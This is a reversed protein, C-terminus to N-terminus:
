PLAAHHDAVFLPILASRVLPRTLSPVHFDDALPGQTKTCAGTVCGVHTWALAVAPGRGCERKVVIAVVPRGDSVAVHEPGKTCGGLSERLSGFAFIDSHSFAPRGNIAM